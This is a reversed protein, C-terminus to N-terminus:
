LLGASLMNISNGGIPAPPPIFTVDLVVAKASDGDWQYVSRFGLGGNFTSRDDHDDWFYAQDQGSAWGGRDVLEQVVTKIEPSDYTTNTTFAVIADWDVRATTRSAWRTDFDGSTSWTAADDADDASIRSNCVTGSRNSHSTVTLKATTISAAKGITVSQFRLGMGYQKTIGDIIGVSMNADTLAFASPTLRYFVDDTSASVQWTPDVRINGKVLRIKLTHKDRVLSLRETLVGSILSTDLVLEGDDDYARYIFRGRGTIKFKSEFPLVKAMHQFKIQNLDPILEFDPNNSLVEITSIEGTKKNTITYKKGRRNLIYPAKTIKGNVWTLNIDKWSENSTYDDKYHIPGLHTQIRVQRSPLAFRKSNEKRGSVVERM